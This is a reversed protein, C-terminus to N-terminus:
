TKECENDKMFQNLERVIGAFRFIPDPLINGKKDRNKASYINAGNYLLSYLKSAAHKEEQTYM